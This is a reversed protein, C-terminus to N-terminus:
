IYSISFSFNRLYLYQSTNPTKWYAGAYDIADTASYSGYTSVRDNLSNEFETFDNEGLYPAYSHFYSKLYSKENENEVEDYIEMIKYMVAYVNAEELSQSLISYDHSNDDNYKEIIEGVKRDDEAYKASMDVYDITYDDPQDNYVKSEVIGNNYNDIITQKEDTETAFVSTSMSALMGAALIMSLLKRLKFM